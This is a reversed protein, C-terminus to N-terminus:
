TSERLTMRVHTSPFRRSKLLKAPNSERRRWQGGRTKGHRWSTPRRRFGFGRAGASMGKRWRHAPGGRSPSRLRVEGVDDTCAHQAVDLRNSRRRSTSATSCIMWPASTSRSARPVRRTCPPLAFHAAISGSRFCVYDAATRSCSGSRTAGSESSCSCRAAVRRGAWRCRGASSSRCKTGRTSLAVSRSWGLPHAANKPERDSSPHDRPAMSPVSSPEGTRPGGDQGRATRPCRAATRAIPGPHACSTPSMFLSM